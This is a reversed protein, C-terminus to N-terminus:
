SPSEGRETKLVSAKLREAVSGYGESLTDYEFFTSLVSYRYDHNFKKNLRRLSKKVLRLHVRADMYSGQIWLTKHIKWHELAKPCKALAQVPQVTGSGHENCDWHNEIFPYGDRLGIFGKEGTWIGINFSRSNCVYATGAILADVPIRKYLYTM